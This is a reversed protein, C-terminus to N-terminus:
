RINLNIWLTHLLQNPQGTPRNVWDNMYGVELAMGPRLHRGVGVFIRNRDLGAQPGAALDNLVVFGEDFAIAYWKGSKGLPHTAQLRQRLRVSTGSVGPLFREELRTRSGLTFKGLPKEINLQQFVRHEVAGPDQFPLGFFYGQQFAITPRFRYGVGGRIFVRDLESQTAVLVSPQVDVFWKSQAGGIPKRLTISTWSSKSSEWDEAQAPPCEFCGWLVGM